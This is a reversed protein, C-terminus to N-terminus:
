SAFLRLGPLRMLAFDKELVPCRVGSVIRSRACTGRVPGMFVPIGTVLAPELVVPGSVASPTISPLACLGVACALTLCYECVRSLPRPKVAAGPECTADIRCFLGEFHVDQDMRKM